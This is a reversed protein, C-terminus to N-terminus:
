LSVSSSTSLKIPNRVEGFFAGDSLFGLREGGATIELEGSILM